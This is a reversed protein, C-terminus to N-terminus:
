PHMLIKTATRGTKEQLKKVVEDAHAAILQVQDKFDQESDVDKIQKDEKRKYFSFALRSSHEEKTLNKALEDLTLHPM